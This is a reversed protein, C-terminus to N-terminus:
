NIVDNIITFDHTRRTLVITKVPNVRISVTYELHWLGSTVGSPVKAIDLMYPKKVGYCGVPINKSITAMSVIMDDMFRADIQAPIDRNKCFSNFVGVEEGLHYTTKDTKLQTSDVLDVIPPNVIVGDIFYWYGFLAGSFGLITACILLYVHKLKHIM